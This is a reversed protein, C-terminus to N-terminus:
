PHISFSLKGVRQQYMLFFKDSFIFSIFNWLIKEFNKKVQPDISDDMQESTSDSNMNTRTPVMEM